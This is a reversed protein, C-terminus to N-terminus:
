NAGTVKKGNNWTETLSGITPSNPDFIMAGVTSKLRYRKIKYIKLINKQFQTIARQPVDL